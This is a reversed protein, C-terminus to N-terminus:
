SGAASAALLVALLLTGLGGMIIGFWARGLGLKEPHKGIDRIALIGTLLAFPAFVLLLSFLGLYGAAIAWLSRGVPLIARTLPDDALRPRATTNTAAQDALVARLQSRELTSLLGVAQQQVAASLNSWKDAMERVRQSAAIGGCHGCFAAEFRISEGCAPCSKTGAPPKTLPLDNGSPQDSM